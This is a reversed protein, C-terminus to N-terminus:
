AARSGELARRGNSTAATRPRGRRSWHARVERASATRYSIGCEIPALTLLRGDRGTVLAHFVRGRKSVEVMDGVMVQGITMGGRDGGVM